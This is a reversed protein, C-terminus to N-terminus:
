AVYNLFSAVFAFSITSNLNIGTKAHEARVTIEAGGFTMTVKIKKSKKNAIKQPLDVVVRGIEEANESIYLESSESSAFLPFIFRTQNKRVPGYYRIVEHGNPVRENAKVFAFFTDKCRKVGDIDELLNAPDKTEDFVKKGRIGYTYSSFRSTIINPNLGFHVAGEVVAMNPFDPIIVKTNDNEFEAQIRKQLITNRAFGGVLFIYDFTTGGLLVSKKICSVINYISEEFMISVLSPPIYLRQKEYRV